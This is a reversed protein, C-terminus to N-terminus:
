RGEHNFFKDKYICLHLFRTYTYSVSLSYSLFPWCLPLIQFPCNQKTVLLEYNWPYSFLMWLNLHKLLSDPWRESIHSFPNRYQNNYQSKSSSSEIIKFDEEPEFLTFEMALVLPKRLNRDNPVEKLHNALFLFRGWPPSTLTFRTIKSTLM